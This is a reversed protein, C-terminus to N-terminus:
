ELTSRITFGSGVKLSNMPLIHRSRGAGALAVNTAPDAVRQDFGAVADEVHSRALKLAPLGM